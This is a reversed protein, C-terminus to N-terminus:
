IITKWFNTFEILSELRLIMRAILEKTLLFYWYIELKLRLNNM